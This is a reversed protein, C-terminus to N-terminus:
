ASAARDMAEAATLGSAMVEVDPYDDDEGLTYVALVSWVPEDALEPSGVPGTIVDLEYWDDSLAVCLESFRRENDDDDIELDASDSADDSVGDWYVYDDLVADIRQLINAVPSTV